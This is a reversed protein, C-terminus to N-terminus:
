KSIYNATLIFVDRKLLAQTPKVPAVCHASDINKVVIAQNFRPVLHVEHNKSNIWGGDKAKEGGLQLGLEGCAWLSHDTLLFFLTYHAYDTPASNDEFRDRHWNLGSKEASESFVENRDIYAAFKWRGERFENFSRLSDFFIRTVSDVAKIYSSSVETGKAVAEFKFTWLRYRNYPLLEPKNNTYALLLNLDDQSLANPTIDFVPFKSLIARKDDSVDGMKRLIQLLRKLKAPELQIDNFTKYLFAELEHTKQPITLSM